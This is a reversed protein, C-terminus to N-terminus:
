IQRCGMCTKSLAVIFSIGWFGSWSSDCVWLRTRRFFYPVAQLSHLRLFFFTHLELVGSKLSWQSLGISTHDDRHQPPGGQPRMVLVRWGQARKEIVYRCIDSNLM